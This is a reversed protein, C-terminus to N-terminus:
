APRVGRCVTCRFSPDQARVPDVPATAKSPDCICPLGVGVTANTSVSVIRRKRKPMKRHQLPLQM